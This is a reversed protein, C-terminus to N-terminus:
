PSPAATRLPPPLASASEKNWGWGADICKQCTDYADFRGASALGIIACLAALTLKNMAFQQPTPPNSDLVIPPM